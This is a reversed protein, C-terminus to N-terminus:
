SGAEHRRGVAAESVNLLRLAHTRWFDRDETMRDTAEREASLMAEHERGLVIRGRDLLRWAIIALAVIVVAVPLGVLLESAAAADVAQATPATM